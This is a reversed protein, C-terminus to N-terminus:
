RKLRLSKPPTPDFFWWERHRGAIQELLETTRVEVLEGPPAYDDLMDFTLRDRLYPFLWNYATHDTM